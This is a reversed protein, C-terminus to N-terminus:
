FVNGNERTGTKCTAGRDEGDEGLRDETITACETRYRREVNEQSQRHSTDPQAM